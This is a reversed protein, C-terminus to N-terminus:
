FHVAKPHHGPGLSDNPVHVCLCEKGHRSSWSVGFAHKAKSYYTRLTPLYTCETTSLVGM